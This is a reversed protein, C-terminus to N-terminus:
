RVTAGAPARVPTLWGHRDPQSGSTLAFFEDQLKKTIAGHAGSGVKVKDISRIPTVEVAPGAFFVEDAIYLMERPIMQEATPIGLDRCLTMMTSRTIGPLVCNALPPTVLHQSRNNKPSVKLIFDGPPPERWIRREGENKEWCFRGQLLGPRPRPVPNRRARKFPAQPL